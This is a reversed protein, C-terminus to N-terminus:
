ADSDIRPTTVILANAAVSLNIWLLMCSMSVSAVSNKWVTAACSHTSMLTSASCDKVIIVAANNRTRTGGPAIEGPVRM